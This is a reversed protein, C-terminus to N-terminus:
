PEVPEHPRNVLGRAVLEEYVRRISFGSLEVMACRNPTLLDTGLFGMRTQRDGGEAILEGCYPTALTGGATRALSAGFGLSPTAAGFLGAIAKIDDPDDLVVHVDVSRRAEYDVFRGAITLREANPMDAIFSNVRSKGHALAILWAATLLALVGGVVYLHRVKRKPKRM